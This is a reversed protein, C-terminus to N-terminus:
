DHPQSSGRGMFKSAAQGLLEVAKERAVAKKLHLVSKTIVRALRLKGTEPSSERWSGLLMFM